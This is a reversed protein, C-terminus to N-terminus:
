TSRSGSAAGAVFLVMFMGFVGGLMPQVVVIRDGALEQATSRNGGRRRDGISFAGPDWDEPQPRHTVVGM